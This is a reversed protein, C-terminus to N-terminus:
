EALIMKYFRRIRINEGFKAISIKILEEVTMSTDKFYSQTMLVQDKDIGKDGKEEAEQTDIYRPDNLVIQLALDKALDIFDQTRAVFDTECNLELLVGIRYGHVYSYVIGQSTQRDMRKTASALGKENLLKLAQDYDGKAQELVNKIDALSASTQERLAKIDEINVKM